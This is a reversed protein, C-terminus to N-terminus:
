RPVSSKIDVYSGRRSSFLTGLVREAEIQNGLGEFNASMTQWGTPHEELERPRYSWGGNDSLQVCCAWGQHLHLGCWGYEGGEVSIKPLMSRQNPSLSTFESSTQLEFKLSATM